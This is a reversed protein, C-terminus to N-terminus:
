GENAAAEKKEQKLTQLLAALEEPTIGTDRVIGVIDTNELERIQEKLEANRDQLKRIKENNKEQEARLNQIKPNM